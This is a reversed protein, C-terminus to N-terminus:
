VKSFLCIKSSPYSLLTLKGLLAIAIMDITEISSVYYISLNTLFNTQNEPTIHFLLHREEATKTERRTQIAKTPTTTLTMAPRLHLNSDSSSFPEILNNTTTTPIDVLISQESISLHRAPTLLPPFISHRLPTQSRNLYPRLREYPEVTLRFRFCLSKM